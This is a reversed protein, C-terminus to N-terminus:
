SVERTMLREYIAMAERVLHDPQMEFAQAVVVIYPWQPTRTAKCWNHVTESSIGARRALERQPMKRAEMQTRLALAWAWRLKEFKLGKGPVARATIRASSVKM